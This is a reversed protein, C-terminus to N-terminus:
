AASRLRAPPVGHATRVQRAFHSRSSYGAAQAAQTVSYGPASLLAGATAMRAALCIERFSTGAQKLQRRLTSAGIGLAGAVEGVLWPHSPDAYIIAEVQETRDVAVLMRGVQTGSLLLLIELIRHQAVAEAIEAVPNALVSAAHGYAEVLDASLTIGFSAPISSGNPLGGLKARLIQRLSTDVTICLSEYRGSQPDPINVLDIEMGAPIAFPVGPPFRQVVDGRWVEKTGSLVVVVAPHALRSRAFRECVQVCYGFVNVGSEAGHPVTGNVGSPASLKALRQLLLTRLSNQTAHSTMIRRGDAQAAFRVLGM